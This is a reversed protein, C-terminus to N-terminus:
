FDALHMSFRFLNFPQTVKTVKSAAYSKSGSVFLHSTFM